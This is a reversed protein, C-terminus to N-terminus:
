TGQLSTFTRPTSQQAPHISQQARERFHGALCLQLGGSGTSARTYDSQTYRYQTALALTTVRLRM